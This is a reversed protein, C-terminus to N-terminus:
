SKLSTNDIKSLGSFVPKVTIQKRGSVLIGLTGSYSCINVCYQSLSLLKSVEQRLVLATTRLRQISLYMYFSSTPSFM